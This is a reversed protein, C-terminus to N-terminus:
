VTDAQRSLLDIVTSYCRQNHWSYQQNNNQFLQLSPGESQSFNM